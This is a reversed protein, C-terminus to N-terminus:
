EIPKWLHLFLSCSRERGEISLGMKKCFFIIIDLVWTSGEGLKELDISCPLALAVGDAGQAHDEHLGEELLSPGGEDQSM